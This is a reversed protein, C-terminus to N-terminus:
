PTPAQAKNLINDFKYFAQNLYSAVSNIETDFWNLRLNLSCRQVQNQLKSFDTARRNERIYILHPDGDFMSQHCTNCNDDHLKQGNEIENDAAVVSSLSLSLLLAFYRM